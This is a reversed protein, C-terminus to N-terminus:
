SGKLRERLWEAHREQMQRGARTFDLLLELQEATYREILPRAAEGLPRGMLEWTLKRTKDTVDVLVRRRDGPDAVREVYGARELRDIV